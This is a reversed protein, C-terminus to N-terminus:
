AAGTVAEGIRRCTEREGSDWVVVTRNALKLRVQAHAPDTPRVFVSLRMPFDQGGSIERRHELEMNRVAVFSGGAADHWATRFGLREAAALLGQAKGKAAEASLGDWTRQFPRYGSVWGLTAILAFVVAAGPPVLALTWWTRWLSVEPTGRYGLAQALLVIAAAPLALMAAIVATVLFYPVRARFRELRPHVQLRFVIKQMFHRLIPEM